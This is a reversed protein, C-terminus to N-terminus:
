HGSIRVRSLSKLRAKIYGMVSILDFRLEEFLVSLKSKGLLDWVLPEFEENGIREFFEDRREGMKSSYLLCGNGNLAENYTRKEIYLRDRVCDVYKEGKDTNTLIVSIGKFMNDPTSQFGWFDGISIDSVRIKEKFKCSSCCPRIFLDGGVFGNVWPDNIRDRYYKRGNQFEMYTGLKTWGKNKNKLHVKSVPSKYKNECDEVYKEFVMPSNIGHCIFDVTILNENDKGMYNNLGAVQCPSGCFLVKKGADLQAKVSKYVGETDSQFYKSGKFEEIDEASEGITHYAAKYNKTYKCAAIMGGQERMYQAFVLFMGGSTSRLRIANDKAWAAYVEPERAKPNRIESLSPCKRVCKGCKICKSYDVKPYWFGERDTVFCISDAPCIDQCMKCGTCDIRNISDVM